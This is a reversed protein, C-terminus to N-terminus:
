VRELINVRLLNHPARPDLPSFWSDTLGMAAKEGLGEISLRLVMIQLAPPGLEIGEVM